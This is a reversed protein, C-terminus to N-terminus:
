SQFCVSGVCTPNRYTITVSAPEDVVVPTGGTLSMSSGGGGGSGNSMGHVAAGGGGGFFGGGGGGGGGSGDPNTGGDGGHAFTGPSGPNGTGVGGAGGVTLEGPQGGTAPYQGPAAAGADGGFTYVPAGGGGGGVIIRTEVNNPDTRVDTAGGGGPVDMETVWGAHGNGGGNFGGGGAGDRALEGDGGVVVWLAGGPAVFFNGTIAAGLGGRREASPYIGTGGQAGVARINVGYVGEPVTFEEPAGTFTYHCSTNVGDDICNAPLNQASATGAGALGVVLVAASGLVVSSSGFRNRTWM